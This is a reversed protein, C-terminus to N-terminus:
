SPYVKVKMKIAFMGSEFADLVREGGDFLAHLNKLIVKQKKRQIKFNYKVQLAWLLISQDKHAEKLTVTGNYINRVFTNKKKM